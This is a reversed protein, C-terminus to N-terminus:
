GECGPSTILSKTVKYFQGDRGEGIVTISGSKAMKIKLMYDILM